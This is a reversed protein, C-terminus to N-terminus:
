IHGCNEAVARDGHKDQQMKLATLIEQRGPGEISGKLIARDIRWREKIYKAVIIQLLQRV